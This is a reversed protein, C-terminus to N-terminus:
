FGVDLDTLSPRAEDAFEYGSVGAITVVDDVFIVSGDGEEVLIGRQIPIGQNCRSFM